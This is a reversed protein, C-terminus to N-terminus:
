ALDGVALWGDTSIKILTVASYQARTVLSPTGNVTAGSGAVFTVMGAGLVAFDIQAGIPFATTTNSPVTVTIGTSSNLTVLKGQDGLAPTYTTTINSSVGVYLGRTAHLTAGHVVAPSKLVSASGNAAGVWSPTLDDVAASGGDFYTGLVYSKEVLVNTIDLTSGVTGTSYLLAIGANATAAGSATIGTVIIESVGAPITLSVIPSQGASTNIDPRYNVVVSTLEESAQVSMRTSFVTGAIFSTGIITAARGVGTALRTFRRSTTSGAFAPGAGLGIVGTLGMWAMDATGRPDVAFNRRVEMGVIDMRNKVFATTAISTDNDATAPTPATPNGTFAPSDLPAKATIATENTNVGDRIVGLATNLKTGWPDEGPLPFVPTIPM